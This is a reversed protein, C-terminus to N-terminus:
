GHHAQRQAGETPTCWLPSFWSAAPDAIAVGDLTHAAYGHPLLHDRVGAQEDPGHLEIFFSPRVERIIRQAGRLVGAAAGEVDIKVVDPRVGDDLVSDLPRAPVVLTEARDLQYTLEVDVLKGQTPRDVAYSFQMTGHMEAVAARIPSIITLRNLRVNRELSAFEVPAPEFAVVRGHRGVLSAFLLAMQGKNAGADVVTMGPKVKSEFFRPAAGEAGFLYSVGIGPEIVIRLGRAPGRWVRRTSGYPFAIRAFTSLM